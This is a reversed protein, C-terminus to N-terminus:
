YTPRVSKYAFPRQCINVQYLATV